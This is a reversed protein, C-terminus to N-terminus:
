KAIRKGVFEYTDIETISQKDERPPPSRSRNRTNAERANSGSAGDNLLLVFENFLEIEQAEANKIAHKKKKVFHFIGAGRRMPM